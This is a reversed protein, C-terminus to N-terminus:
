YRWMERLRLGTHECIEEGEVFQLYPHISARLLALKQEEDVASAVEQLKSSLERGDRMVSFISHWGKPTLRRCEMERVFEAVAGERLQADRGVLHRRRVRDKEKAPLGNQVPPAITVQTKRCEIEWDQAILDLVISKVLRLKVDEQALPEKTPPLFEQR